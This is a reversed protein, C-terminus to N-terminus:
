PTVRTSPLFKESTIKSNIKSLSKQTLYKLELHNRKYLQAYADDEFGHYSALVTM